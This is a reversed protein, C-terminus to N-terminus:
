KFIPLTFISRIEILDKLSQQPNNKQAMNDKRTNDLDLHDNSTIQHHQRIIETQGFKLLINFLQNWFVM